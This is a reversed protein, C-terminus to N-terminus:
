TAAVTNWEMNAVETSGMPTPYLGTLTSSYVTIFTPVAFWADTYNYYM